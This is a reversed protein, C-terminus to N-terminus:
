PVLSKSPTPDIPSPPLNSEVRFVTADVRRSMKVEVMLTENPHLIDCLTKADSRFELPRYFALATSSEGPRAIIRFGLRGEMQPKNLGTIL